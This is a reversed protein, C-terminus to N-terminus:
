SNMKNLIDSAKRFFAQLTTQQKDIAASTLKTSTQKLDAVDSGLAPFNKTQIAQLVAAINTSVMKFNNSVSSANSIKSDNMGNMQSSYNKLEDLAKSSELNYQVAKATVAKALNQLATKTYTSDTGIRTSDKISEGYQMVASTNDPTDLDDQYTITDRSTNYETSDIETSYMDDMDKGAENNMYVFYAIVALIILILLIWPWVPKKKEIKIEAM